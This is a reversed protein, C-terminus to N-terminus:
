EGIMKDGFYELAYQHIEDEDPFNNDFVVGGISDVMEGIEWEGTHDDWVGMHVGVFYVYGHKLTDAYKAADLAYQEVDTVWSLGDIVNLDVLVSYGNTDVYPSYRFRTFRESDAHDALTDVADRLKQLNDTLEDDLARYDDADIVRSQSESMFGSFAQDFESKVDALEDALHDYENLYNEEKTVLEEDGIVFNNRFAHDYVVVGPFSESFEDGLWQTADHDYELTFFRSGRRFCELYEFM